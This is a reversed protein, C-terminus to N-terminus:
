LHRSAWNMPHSLGLGLRHWVGIRGATANFVGGDVALVIAFLVLDIRVAAM